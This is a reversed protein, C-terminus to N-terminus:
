GHFVLIYLHLSRAMALQPGGSLGECVIMKISICNSPSCCVFDTRISDGYIAYRQICVYMYCVICYVRLRYVAQQSSNNYYLKENAM